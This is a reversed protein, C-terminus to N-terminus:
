PASSPLQIMGQDNESSGGWFERLSEWKEDLDYCFTDRVATIFNSITSRTFAMRWFVHMAAETDGRCVFGFLEAGMDRLQNNWANWNLSGMADRSSASHMLVRCFERYPLSRGSAALFSTTSKLRGPHPRPANKPRSPRRSLRDTLGFSFLDCEFRHARSPNGGQILKSSFPRSPHQKKNNIASWQDSTKKNLIRASHIAPM